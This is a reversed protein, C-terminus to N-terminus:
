TCPCLSSPPTPHCGECHRLPRGTAGFTATEAHPLHPGFRPNASSYPSSTPSGKLGPAHRCDLIYRVTEPGVPEPPLPQISLLPSPWTSRTVTAPPAVMWRAAWDELRKRRPHVDYPQRCHPAREERVPPCARHSFRPIDRVPVRARHAPADVEPLWM